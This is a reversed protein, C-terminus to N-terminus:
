LHTVAIVYVLRFFFREIPQVEAAGADHRPPPATQTPLQASRARDCPPRSLHQRRLSPLVGPSPWRSAGCLRLLLARFGTWPPALMRWENTSSHDNAVRTTPLYPTVAHELERVLVADATPDRSSASLPRHLVANNSITRDLRCSRTVSMSRRVIHGVRWAPFQAVCIHACTARSSRPRRLFAILVSPLMLKMSHCSRFLRAGRGPVPLRKPVASQVHRIM